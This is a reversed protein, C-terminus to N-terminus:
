PKPAQPTQSLSTCPRTKSAVRAACQAAGQESDAPIRQLEALPRPDNNGAREKSTRAPKAANDRLNGCTLSMCDRLGGNGRPEKPKNRPTAHAQQQANRQAQQGVAREVLEDPVDNAYHRGSVTISHGLWKSVAYQPFTMAWEKECSQRLTQWLRKWPEVGARACIAEVQRAISGAGHIAVLPLEGPGCEEFRAMLLTMLKPVIPVVRQEHGTHRETKPSHVTLRGGGLDVDGWTVLHSESPIRLGAYRAFGFLLRWEADPCAELIREIEDPTIYRTYRSPTPGSKLYRFPNEAIMKRRVAEQLIAKANGSHGKASAESLESGRLAQRWDAAQGTSILRLPIEPDFYALLKDRTQALKRHSGAKLDSSRQDLYQALWEGLTVMQRPGVLGVRALKGAMRDDLGVLWRTTEESPVHGTFAAALLDEVAVRLREAYRRAIKGLYIMRRQGQRDTFTIFRQGSQRTTISAM